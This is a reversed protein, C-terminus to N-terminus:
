LRRSEFELERYESELRGYDRELDRLRYILYDRERENLGTNDRLRAHTRNIEERLTELRAEVEHMRRGHDYGDLFADALEDPCVGNYGSGQRGARLGNASTCFEDLGRVRGAEYQIADPKIGLEACAERHAQLRGAEFGHSGDNYGISEWDATQCESESLSACGGLSLSSALFLCGAIRFTFSM